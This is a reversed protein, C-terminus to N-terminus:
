GVGVFLPRILSLRPDCLSSEAPLSDAPLRVADFRLHFSLSECCCRFPERLVAGPLRAVVNTPSLSEGWADWM